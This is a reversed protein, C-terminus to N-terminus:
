FIIECINNYNFKFSNIINNKESKIYFNIVIKM